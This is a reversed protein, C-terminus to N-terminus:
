RLASKKALRVAEITMLVQTGLELLIAYRAEHMLMTDTTLLQAFRSLFSITLCGGMAWVAHKHMRFLLFTSILAAVTLLYSLVVRTLDPVAIAGIRAFLAFQQSQVWRVGISLGALVLYYAGM